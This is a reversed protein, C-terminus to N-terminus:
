GGKCYLEILGDPRPYNRYVNYPNDNYLLSEEGDYEEIDVVLMLEPKIGTQGANFFESSYISLEACFVLRNVPTEISNGIEDYTITVSQLYCILDLSINDKGSINKLAPM